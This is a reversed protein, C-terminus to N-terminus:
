EKESDKFQNAIEQYRQKLEQDQSLKEQMKKYATIISSHRRNFYAAIAPYSIKCLTRMAYIALQRAENVIMKQTPGLLEEVSLHAAQATAQLINLPTLAERQTRVNEQWYALFCQLSLEDNRSEAFEIFQHLVKKADTLNETRQAILEPLLNDMFLKLGRSYEAVFGAIEHNQPQSLPLVIGSLFRSMLREGLFDLNLSEAELTAVMKGGNHLIYEYTYHLEELTQKKGALGQLDDMLLLPTTRYRQRFQSLKGEQSAYAYQRSFAAANTLIGGEKFWQRELYNLLTTKGVGFPGYILVMNSAKEPRYSKVLRWAKINFDSLFWDM